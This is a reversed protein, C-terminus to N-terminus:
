TPGIGDGAVRQGEYGTQVGGDGDVLSPLRSADLYRRHLYAALQTVAGTLILQQEPTLNLGALQQLVLEVFGASVIFQLAGRGARNLASRTLAKM